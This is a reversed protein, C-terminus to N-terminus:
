YVSCTRLGLLSPSVQVAAPFVCKKLQRKILRVHVTHTFLLAVDQSCSWSEAHTTCHRLMCLQMSMYTICSSCINYLSTVHMTAYNCVRIYEYEYEYINSYQYLLLASCYKSCSLMLFYIISFNYTVYNKHKGNPPHCLVSYLTGRRDCMLLNVTVGIFEGWWRGIDTLQNSM